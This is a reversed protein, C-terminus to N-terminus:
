DAFEEENCDGMICFLNIFSYTIAIMVGTYGVFFPALERLAGLTIDLESM